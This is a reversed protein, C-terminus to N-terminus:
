FTLTYFNIQLNTSDSNPSILRLHISLSPLPTPYILIPFKLLYKFSNHPDLLILSPTVPPIAYILLAASSIFIHENHRLLAPLSLSCPSCLLISSRNLPYDSLLFFFLAVSSHSSLNSFFIKILVFVNQFSYILNSLPLFNNDRSYSNSHLFPFLTKPSNRFPFWM